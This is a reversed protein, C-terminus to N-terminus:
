TEMVVFTIEVENKDYSNMNRFSVRLRTKAGKGLVIIVATFGMKGIHISTEMIGSFQFFIVFVKRLPRADSPM